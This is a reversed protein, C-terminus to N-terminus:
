FKKYGPFNVENYKIYYDAFQTAYVKLLYLNNIIKKLSGQLGELSDSKNYLIFTDQFCVFNILDDSFESLIGSLCLLASKHENLKTISKPIEKETCFEHRAILNIRDTSGILIPIQRNKSTIDELLKIEDNHNPFNISNYKLYYDLLEIFVNKLKKINIIISELAFQVDEFLRGNYELLFGEDDFIGKNLAFQQQSYYFIGLEDRLRSMFDRCHSLKKMDNLFKDAADRRTFLKKKKVSILKIREM